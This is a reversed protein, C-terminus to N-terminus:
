GRRIIKYYWAVDLSSRKTWKMKISKRFDYPGRCLNRTMIILEGLLHMIRMLPSAAHAYACVALRGFQHPGSSRTYLTRWANRRQRTVRHPRSVRSPECLDCTADDCRTYTQTYLSTIDASLMCFFCVWLFAVRMGLVCWFWIGRMSHPWSVKRFRGVVFMMHFTRDKSKDCPGRCLRVSAHTFMCVCAHVWARTSGM